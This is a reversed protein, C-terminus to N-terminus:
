ETWDEVRLGEVREFERTNRTVLTGDRALVTAANVLDNPGIPM